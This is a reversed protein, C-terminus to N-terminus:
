RKEMTEVLELEAVSLDCRAQGATAADRYATVLAVVGAVEDLGATGEVDRWV